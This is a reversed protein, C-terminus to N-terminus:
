MRGTRLAIQEGMHQRRGPFAAVIANKQEEAIDTLSPAKRSSTVKGDFLATLALFLTAPHVARTRDQETSLQALVLLDVIGATKGLRPCRLTYYVDYHRTGVLKRVSQGVEAVTLTSGEEPTDYPDYRNARVSLPGDFGRIKLVVPQAHLFPHLLHVILFPYSSQGRTRCYLVSWVDPDAITHARYIARLFDQLYDTPTTRIEELPFIVRLDKNYQFCNHSFVFWLICMCM